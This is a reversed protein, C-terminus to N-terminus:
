FFLFSMPNNEFILFMILNSMLVKIKKQDHYLGELGKGKKLKMSEKDEKFEQTLWEM